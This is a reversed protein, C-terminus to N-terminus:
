AGALQWDTALFDTQSCLWPVRRGDVTTMMVYPLENPTHPIVLELFM